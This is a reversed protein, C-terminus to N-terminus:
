EIAAFPDGEWLDFEGPVPPLKRYGEAHRTELERDKHRQLEARVADRFFAPRSIRPKAATGDVDELLPEDVALRITKM